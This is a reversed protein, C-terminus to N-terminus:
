LRKAAIHSLVRVLHKCTAVKYGPNTVDPPAGNGYALPAAGRQWLVWEWKYLFRSCNCSVSVGPADVLRGTFTDPQCTIEQRWKRQKQGPIRTLTMTNFVSAGEETRKRVIKLLTVYQANSNDPENQLSLRLLRMLPLYSRARRTTPVAAALTPNSRGLLSDLLRPLPIAM